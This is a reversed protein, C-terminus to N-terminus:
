SAGDARDGVVAEVDVVQRAVDKRFLEAVQRGTLEANDPSRLGVPEDRDADVQVLRGGIRALVDGNLRAIEQNQMFRDASSSGDRHESLPQLRNERAAGDVGLFRSAPRSESDLLTRLSTAYARSPVRSRSRRESATRPGKHRSNNRWRK